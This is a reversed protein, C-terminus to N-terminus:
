CYVLMPESLPEIDLLHCAMIQFLSPRNLQRMYVDSKRLSNFNVPEHECEHKVNMQEHKVRM